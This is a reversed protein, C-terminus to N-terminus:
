GRIAKARKAAMHRRTNAAKKAHAHDAVETGEHEVKCHERFGAFTTFRVGCGDIDCEVGIRLHHHLTHPQLGARSIFEAVCGETCKFRQEELQGLHKKIHRKFINLSAISHEKGCHPCTLKEGKRFGRIHRQVNRENLFSRSCSEWSCPFRERDSSHGMRHQEMVDWRNFQLNCVSCQHYKGCMKQHMGIALFDDGCVNCRHLATGEIQLRAWQTRVPFPAHEHEYKIHNKLVTPIQIRKHCGSNIGILHPPRAM